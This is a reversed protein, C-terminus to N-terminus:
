LGAQPREPPPQGMLARKLSRLRFLTQPPLGEAIAVKLSKTMPQDTGVNGIKGSSKSFTHQTQVRYDIAEHLFECEGPILQESYQDGAVAAPLGITPRM